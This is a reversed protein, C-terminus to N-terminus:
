PDTEPDPDQKKTLPQCSALLFYNKDEFNQKSIVKQLYIFIQKWVYFILFFNCFHLFWPLNKKCGKQKNISPDPDPDPDDLINVSGSGFPGFVPIRRIWIRIWLVSERGEKGNGNGTNDTNNQAKIMQRGESEETDSSAPISGLITESSCKRRKVCEPLNWKKQKKGNKKLPM